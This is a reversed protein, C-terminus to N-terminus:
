VNQKSRGSVRGTYWASANQPSLTALRSKHLDIRYLDLNKAKPSCRDVLTVLLGFPM